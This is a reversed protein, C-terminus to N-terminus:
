ECTWSESIIDGYRVMLSQFATGGTQSGGITADLSLLGKVLPDIRRDGADDSGPFTTDIMSDQYSCANSVRLHVIHGVAKALASTMLSPTVHYAIIPIEPGLSNQVNFNAENPMASVAEIMRTVLSVAVERCLQVQSLLGLECSRCIQEAFPLLSDALVLVGLSWFSIM